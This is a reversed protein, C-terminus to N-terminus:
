FNSIDYIGFDPDKEPQWTRIHITPEEPKNLDVMVFLYGTDGYTTSFYDQQLQIGYIEGGVGAKKVSIDTFKLNVYENSKFVSSLQRIYQAKTYKTLKANNGTLAFKPNDTGTQNKVAKGVIILANESFISEIYDLRKLAYATKYNEIFNIIAIRSYNGWQEYKLIDSCVHAPLAFSLSRIKGEKQGINFVIDEVFARQNNRFSFKMPLSRVLVGDEFELFSYAPKAVIVARGYQVLRTFVDYGETTFCDRAEDYKKTRIAQEVRELISLYPKGDITKINPMQKVAVTKSAAVIPTASPTTSISKRDVKPASSNKAAVANTATQANQAVALTAGVLPISVYSKKFTKPEVKSLVDNVENDIKWENEFAYEVKLRLDKHQSPDGALEAMGRGDKAAIVVSWNRGDFFAYDCNVAIQKKYTVSLTYQMITGDAQKDQVAFSLNDFVTNITRPLYVDLKQAKGAIDMTVTEADPLSQLLMLAWYYYRLADAVQYHEEAKNAEEVFEKVKREREAFIKKVEAKKVFRFVNVKPEEGWSLIETNKITANSHTQVINNVYEKFQAKGNLTTQEVQSSFQSEVNTSISNILMELAAKDALASTKGVGEGWYYSKDKKIQDATQAFASQIGWCFFTCGILMISIKTTVNM